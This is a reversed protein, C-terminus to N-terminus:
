RAPRLVESVQRALMDIEGLDLAKDMVDIGIAPYKRVTGGLRSTFAAEAHAQGGIRVQISIWRGKQALPPTASNVVRVKLAAEIAQSFRACVAQQNLGPSGKAAGAVTCHLAVVPRRDPGAAAVPDSAVM